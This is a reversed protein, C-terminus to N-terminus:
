NYEYAGDVTATEVKFDFSQCSDDQKYAIAYVKYAGDESCALFGSAEFQLNGSDNINFGTSTGDHTDASHPQTYSLEGTKAVYVQQGGPVSVDLSLTGQGGSFVTNLTDRKSASAQGSTAKNLWFTGGNANIPDNQFGSGSRIATGVFNDTSAAAPAVFAAAAALASLVQTTKM